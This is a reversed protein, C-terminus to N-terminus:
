IRPLWMGMTAGFIGLAMGGSLIFIGAAVSFRMASTGKDQVRLYVEMVAVPLIYVATQLFVLFPGTFTKPDFGVPEGHVVLWLMLGIRFFWVGSVAVFLRLAWRRHIAFKRKRAYTIALVACVIIIFGNILISADAFADGIAGRTLVMFTGTLSMLLATLVYLRGNWKHFSGAKARLWPILQMTGGFTIIAAMLLHSIVAINGALDGNIIGGPMVTNFRETDATFIATYYLAIIYYSFIAQGALTVSFWFKAAANLAQKASVSPRVMGLAISQTNM